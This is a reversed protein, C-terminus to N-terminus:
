FLSPQASPAAPAVWCWASFGLFSGAVWSGSRGPIPAPAAPAISWVPVGAALAAAAVALSGAGPCFFLAVSASSVAAKSRCILRVRLPVAASGGAWWFVRAGAARAAAVGAVSSLSCAGAGGPGFAAFVRTSRALSSAAAAALVLADAGVCCGTHICCCFQASAAALVSSVLPAASAPLSRSGGAFLSWASSPSFVPFSVV